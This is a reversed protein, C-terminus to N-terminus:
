QEAPVNGVNPVRAPKRAADRWRDLHAAGLNTTLDDPGLLMERDATAMVMPLVLCAPVCHTVARRGSPLAVALLCRKPFDIVAQRLTTAPCPCGFFCRPVAGLLRDLAHRPRDPVM